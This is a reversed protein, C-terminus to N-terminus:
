LQCANQTIFSVRKLSTLTEEIAVKLIPWDTFKNKSKKHGHTCNNCYEPLIMM